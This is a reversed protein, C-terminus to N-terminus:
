KKIQHHYINAISLLTTYISKKLIIPIFSIEFISIFKGTTIVLAM